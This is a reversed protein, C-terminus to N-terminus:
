RELGPILLRDGIEQFVVQNAGETSPNNTLVRGEIGRLVVKHAGEASPTTTPVRDGVGRLQLCDARFNFEPKKDLRPNLNSRLQAHTLVFSPNKLIDFETKGIAMSM